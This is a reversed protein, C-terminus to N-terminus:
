FIKNTRTRVMQKKTLSTYEKKMQIIEEESQVMDELFIVVRSIIAKHATPDWLTTQIYTPIIICVNILFYKIIFFIMINTYKTDYIHIWLYSIM